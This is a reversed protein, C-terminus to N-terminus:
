ATRGYVYADHNASADVCGVTVPKRGLNRIPDPGPSPLLTIRNRQWRIEVAKIGRLLRKPILLGDKTIKAVM